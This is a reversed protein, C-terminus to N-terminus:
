TTRERTAFREIKNCCRARQINRHSKPVWHKRPVVEKARCVALNRLQQPKSNDLAVTLRAVLGTARRTHLSGQLPLALALTISSAYSSVLM